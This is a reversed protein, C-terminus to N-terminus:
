KKISIVGVAINIIRDETEKRSINLNKSCTLNDIVEICDHWKIQLGIKDFVEEVHERNKYRWSFKNRDTFSNLIENTHINLSNSNAPTIDCTIWFGNNQKIIDFINKALLEKEDFNLYRMLGQNLVTIPKTIDFYKLCKNLDQKNLANGKVFHLNKPIRSYTKIMKQKNKIVSPLDLEVYTINKNDLCRTLGRTTFGSALELIQLSGCADCLKDILKYRAELSPALIVKKLEQPFGKENLLNYMEKAFPIDTFILPYATYLATPIISEFSKTNKL